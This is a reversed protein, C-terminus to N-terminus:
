DRDPRGAWRLVTSSKGEGEGKPGNDVAFEAGLDENNKGKCGILRDDDVSEGEGRPDSGERYSTLHRCERAWSQGQISSITCLRSPSIPMMISRSLSGSLSFLLTSLTPSIARVSVVVPFFLFLAYPHFRFSSLLASSWAFKSLGLGLEM